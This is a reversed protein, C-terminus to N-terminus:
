QKIRANVRIQFMATMVAFFFATSIGCLLVGTVGQIVGLLRWNRPLLVDGYGITTYSTMSFYISTEFDSFLANAYYFGAWVITETIHLTLIGSFVLIMVIAHYTRAHKQELYGRRNLLLEAILLIGAVHVLVCVAVILFAVLIENFM